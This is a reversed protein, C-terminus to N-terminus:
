PAICSGQLVSTHICSRLPCSVYGCGCTLLSHIFVSTALRCPRAFWRSRVRRSRTSRREPSTIRVHIGVKLCEVIRHVTCPYRTTANTEQNSTEPPAHSSLLGFRLRRSMLPLTAPGSSQTSADTKTVRGSDGREAQQASAVHSKEDLTFSPDSSGHLKYQAFVEDADPSHSSSYKKQSFSAHDYNM